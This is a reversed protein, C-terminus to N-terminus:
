WAPTKLARTPSRIARRRNGACVTLASPWAARTGAANPNWKAFCRSADRPTPTTPNTPVNCSMVRGGFDLDVLNNSKSGAYEVLGLAPKEWRFGDKSTAYCVRLPGHEPKGRGLYWMRLEDGVQLVTGYYSMSESDPAGPGGPRLVPNAADRQAPILELQLGHRFPVSHRDFPFLVAEPASSELRQTLDIIPGAAALVLTQTWIVWATTYRPLPSM